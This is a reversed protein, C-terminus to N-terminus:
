RDIVINKNAEFIRFGREVWRGTSDYVTNQLTFDNAANQDSFIAEIKTWDDADVVVYLTM